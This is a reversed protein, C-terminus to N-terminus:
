YTFHGQPSVSGAILLYGGCGEGEKIPIFLQCNRCEKDTITSLNTYGFSKRKEIDVAPIGPLDDCPNAAATKVKNMSVTNKQAAAVRWGREPSMLRFPFKGVEKCSTAAM